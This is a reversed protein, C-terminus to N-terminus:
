AYWEWIVYGRFYIYINGTYLGRFVGEFGLGNSVLLLMLGDVYYELVM